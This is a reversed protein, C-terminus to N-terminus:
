ETKWPSGSGEQKDWCFKAIHDYRHCNHCQLGQGQGQKSSSERKESGSTKEVQGQHPQTSAREVKKTKQQADKREKLLRM